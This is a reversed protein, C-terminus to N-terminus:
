TRKADYLLTPLKAFNVAFAHAQKRTMRDATTGILGNEQEYHFWVLPFGAADTVQWAIGTDTVIWPPPFNKPM